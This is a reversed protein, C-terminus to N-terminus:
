VNSSTFLALRAPQFGYVEGADCLAARQSTVTQAPPASLSADAHPPWASRPLAQYLQSIKKVKVLAEPPRPSFPIHYYGRNSIATANM